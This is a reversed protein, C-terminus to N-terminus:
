GARAAISLHAAMTAGCLLYAEAVLVQGAPIVYDPPASHIRSYSHLPPHANHTLARHWM